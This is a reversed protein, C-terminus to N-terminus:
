LPLKDLEKSITKTALKAYIETTKLRNHGLIAQVIKISIGNNLAVTAFTHRSTHFTLDKTIGVNEAIVKLNKNTTQNCPLDGFIRGKKMRRALIKRGNPIIPIYVPRATKKMKIQIHNEHISKAELKAVDSFRLGTYTAFLYADKVAAERESAPEYRRIMDVEELTLFPRIGPKFSITIDDFPNYEIKGEKQLKRIFTRLFSLSKSRTNESNGLEYKMYADYEMILGRSIQHVLVADNWKTFKTQETRYTRLTEPSFRSREMEVYYRIYENFSDLKGSSEYMFERKFTEHDIHWHNDWYKILIERARTLRKQLRKDKLKLETSLHQIRGTRKNFFEPLVSVGSSYKVNESNIYVRILVPIEGNKKV